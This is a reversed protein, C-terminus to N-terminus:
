VPRRLVRYVVPAALLMAGLLLIGTETWQFRWYRDAPHYYLVTRYGADRVCPLYTDRTTNVCESEPIEMVEAGAPSLWASDTVLGGTEVRDAVQRLPEAYAPRGYQFFGFMVVLFVVVTVAMAPLLRRTLGGASAGLVFAFLWWAGVAVGTGGFLATDGFRDGGHATVWGSVMLGLVLGAVTVALGLGGLKTVLWRWRSVSQTWVLRHTGREIEVALVPAGWFIGVLVPVVPLWNLLTYADSGQVLVIAGLLLLFGVTALVQMRHQRWTLWVM